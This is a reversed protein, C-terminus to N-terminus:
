RRRIAVLCRRVAPDHSDMQRVYAIARIAQAKTLTMPLGVRDALERCGAPIRERKEGAAHVPMVLLALAAAALALTRAQAAWRRVSCANNVPHHRANGCSQVNQM